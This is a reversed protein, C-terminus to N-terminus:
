PGRPHPERVVYARVGQPPQIKYAVRGEIEPFDAIFPLVFYKWKSPLLVWDLNRQRINNSCRKDCPHYVRAFLCTHVPDKGFPIFFAPSRAVVSGTKPLDVAVAGIPTGPNRGWHGGKCCWPTWGFGAWSFVVTAGRVPVDSYNTVTAQALYPRGRELKSGTVLVNPSRPFQGPNKWTHVTLPDRSLGVDISPCCCRCGASSLLMGLAIVGLTSIRVLSNTNM